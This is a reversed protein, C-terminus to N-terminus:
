TMSLAIRIKEYHLFEFIEQTKKIWNIWDMEDFETLNNNRMSISRTEFPKSALKDGFKIAFANPCFLHSFSLRDSSNFNKSRFREANLHEQILLRRNDLVHFIHALFSHECYLISLVLCLIISIALFSILIFCLKLLFSKRVLNEQQDNEIMFNEHYCEGISNPNTRSM